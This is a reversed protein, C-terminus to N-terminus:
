QSLKKDKLLKVIETITEDKNHQEKWEQNMVLSDQDVETKSSTNEQLPILAKGAYSEILPIETTCRGRIAKM